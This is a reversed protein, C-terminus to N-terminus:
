RCGQWCKINVTYSANEYTHLFKITAKINLERVFFLIHCQKVQKNAVPKDEKTVRKNM